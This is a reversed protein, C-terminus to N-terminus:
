TPRPEAIPESLGDWETAAFESQIGALEHQIDLDSAMMKCPQCCARLRRNERQLAALEAQLEQVASQGLLRYGAELLVITRSTGQGKSLYGKVVLRNVHYIVNSSSAIGVGRGIDRIAPAYGHQQLYDYMFQLIARQRASVLPVKGAMQVKRKGVQM